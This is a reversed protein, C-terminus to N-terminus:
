RSISPWTAPTATAWTPWPTRPGSTPRPWCCGITSAPTSTPGSSACSPSPRPCTRARPARAPTSTPFRMSASVTSGWPWGTTSSTWCPRACPRITTISARNIRISVIGSTRRPWRISPGTPIRSTRSSSGRGPSATRPIAGSTSTGTCRGRSPWAPGSFGLTSTRPTRWSSSPSSACGAAIPRACSCASIGCRATPPICRGTTRFTM